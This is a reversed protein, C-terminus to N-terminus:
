RFVLLLVIVLLLVGGGVVAVWFFPNSFLSRENGQFGTRGPTQMNFGRPKQPRNQPTSRSRSSQFAGGEMNERIMLVVKWTVAGLTLIM